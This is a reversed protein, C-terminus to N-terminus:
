GDFILPVSIIGVSSTAVFGTVWVWDPVDQSDGLGGDPALLSSRALVPLQGLCSPGGDGDEDGDDGGGGGGGGAGYNGSCGSRSGRAGRAGSGRGISNASPRLVAGQPPALDGRIADDMTISSVASPQESDRLGGSHSRSKERDRPQQQPPPQHHHLVGPGLNLMGPPMAALMAKAPPSSGIGRGAGGGGGGGDDLDTSSLMTPPPRVVGGGMFGGGDDNTGGLSGLSNGSSGVRATARAAAGSPGGFAGRSGAGDSWAGGSGGSATRAAAGAGVLHGRLGAAVEARLVAASAAEEDSTDLRARQGAPGPGYLDDDDDDDDNCDSGGGGGDLAHPPLLPSSLQAAAAAARLARGQASHRLGRGSGGGAAREAEAEASTRRRRPRSGGEGGGSGSASKSSARGGSSGSSARAPRHAPVSPLPAALVLAMKGINWLCDALVMGVSRACVCVFPPAALAASSTHPSLFFWPSCHFCVHSISLSHHSALYQIARKEVEDQWDLNHRLRARTHKSKEGTAYVGYDFGSTISDNFWFKHLDSGKPQNAVYTQLLPCFIGWQLVAGIMGSLSYKLKILLSGGIYNFDLTGYWRKHLLLPPTRLLPARQPIFSCCSLILRSKTHSRELFYRLLRVRAGM